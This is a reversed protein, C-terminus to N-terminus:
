FQFNSEKIAFNRGGDLSLFPEVLEEPSIQCSGRLTTLSPPQHLHVGRGGEGGGGM